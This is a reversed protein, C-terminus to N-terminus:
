QEEKVEITLTGEKIEIVSTDKENTRKIKFVPKSDEYVHRLSTSSTPKKGLLLHNGQTDAPLRADPRWDLFRKLWARFLDMALLVREGKYAPFYYHGSFLNPNFPVKIKQDAFLPVTVQYQDISTNSDTYIQYTEEDDAGTESVIKGEVYRPYTPARFEPLRVYLEEKQEFRLTTEVLFGAQQQQQQDDVGSAASEAVLELRVLRLTKDKLLAPIALGFGGYRSQPDELKILHGPMLADSPFRLTDVRLEPKRTRLRGRELSEREDVQAAVSTRILYDQRIEAASNTNDITKVQADESYANLVYAKHRPAEPVDVWLARLDEPHLKAPTGAADKQAAIKYKQTAYDYYFVLGQADVIWLLWDYFSAAGPGPQCGLFILPRTSEFPPADYEIKIKDGKYTDVVDKLAKETFLACPFHQMWLHRAPDVFRLRYRRVLVANGQMERFPAESYGRECVLGAVKLPARGQELTLDPRVAHVTLEINILKQSTIHALLSDKFAGGKAKDDSQLLELEGEFGYTTLCLHLRKVQAGFLKVETGDVILKLGLQLRDRNSLPNSVPSSGSGKSSDPASM